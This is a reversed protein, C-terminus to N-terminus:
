KGYNSGSNAYKKDLYAWAQDVTEYISLDDTEPTYKQLMRLAMTVHWPTYM